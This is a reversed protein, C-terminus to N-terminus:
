LHPAEPGWRRLHALHVSHRARGDVRERKAAGRHAREASLPDGPPHHPPYPYYLPNDPTQPASRTQPPKADPRRTRPCGFFFSPSLLRSRKPSRVGHDVYVGGSPGTAITANDSSGNAGKGGGVRGQVRDVTAKIALGVAAPDLGLTWADSNTRVYVIEALPAEGDDAVDDENGAAAAAAAAAPRGAPDVVKFVQVDAGSECPQVTRHLSDVLMGENLVHQLSGNERSGSPHPLSRATTSNVLRSEVPKRKPPGFISTPEPEPKPKPPTPRHTPPKVNRLRDSENAAARAPPVPAGNARAHDHARRAEAVKPCLFGDEDGHRMELPVPRFPTGDHDVVEVSPRDRVLRSDGSHLM